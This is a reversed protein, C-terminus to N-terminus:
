GAKELEKQYDDYFYSLEFILKKFSNTFTNINILEKVLEKCFSWNLVNVNDLITCITRRFGIIEGSYYHVEELNGKKIAQDLYWMMDDLKEQLSKIKAKSLKM